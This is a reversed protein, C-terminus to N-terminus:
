TPNKAFVAKVSADDSVTVSCGKKGTCAGTWKVFHWGKSPKKSLTVQTGDAYSESCDTGCVIGAPASTVKGKGKKTVTLTHTPPPPKADFTATVQRNGTM